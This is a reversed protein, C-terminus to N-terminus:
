NVTAVQSIRSALCKSLALQRSKIDDQDLFLSIESADIAFTEMLTELRKSTMDFAPTIENGITQELNLMASQIKQKDKGLAVVAVSATKDNIGMLELARGIQHQASAYIVMEVDLSRSRMYGGKYANFANQAASLLHIENVIMAGDFFQIALVFESMSSAMSLLRDRDLHTANRFEAICINLEDDEWIITDFLMASGGSKHNM